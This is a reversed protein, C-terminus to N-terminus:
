SSSHFLRRLSVEHFGKKKEKEKGRGTKKQRIRGVEGINKNMSMM